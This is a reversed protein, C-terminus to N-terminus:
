DASTATTAPRFRPTARRIQPKTSRGDDCAALMAPFLLLVIWSDTM